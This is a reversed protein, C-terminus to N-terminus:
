GFRQCSVAPHVHRRSGHAAGCRSTNRGYHQDRDHEQEPSHQSLEVVRAAAESGTAHNADVVGRAGAGKMLRQINRESQEYEGEGFHQYRVKGDGDLLYLGPWYNNDFARWISFENDVAVPYQVRMAKAERRINDLDHEFPFEPSRAGIVVLGQPRYKEAWARVYPLTRLWNICTYTWVDILVVAACRPRPHAAGLQALRNGDSSFGASM